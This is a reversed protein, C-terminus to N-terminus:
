RQAAKRTARRKIPTPRSPAPRIAAARPFSEPQLFRLWAQATAVIEEPTFGYGLQLHYKFAFELALKRAEDM